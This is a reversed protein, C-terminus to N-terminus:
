SRNLSAAKEAAAIIALFSAANLSAGGVLVGDVEDCEFIAAANQATVSGGYLVRWRQDQAALLMENLRARLPKHITAIDANTPILGTGIAWVPEYAIVTNAASSVGPLSASLQRLCVSEALGAAREGGTEGVCVIVMLGAEIASQAKRKVLESTEGHLSRRESHGLIVAAAGADKLMLASIDGTFAGSKAPSCDQAGIKLQSGAAREAASLLLTAPPFMMVDVSEQAPLGARVADIQALDASLGNMKWNGAVLPKLKAM